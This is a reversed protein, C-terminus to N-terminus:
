KKLDCDIGYGNRCFFLDENKLKNGIIKLKRKINKLLFSIERGSMLNSPGSVIDSIEQYDLRKNPKEMLLKLLKYEKGEPLLNTLTEGYIVNGSELGFKLENCELVQEKEFFNEIKKRKIIEKRKEDVRIFDNKLYKIVKQPKCKIIAVYDNESHDLINYDKPTNKLDEFSVFPLLDIDPEVTEELNISPLKEEEVKLKYDKIIKKRKLGDLFDTKYRVPVPFDINQLYIKIDEISKSEKIKLCENYLKWVVEDKCASKTIPRKPITSVKSKGSRKKQVNPKARM